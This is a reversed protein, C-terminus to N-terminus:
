ARSWRTMSWTVDAATPNNEVGQVDRSTALLAPHAFLPITALDRWLATDILRLIGLQRARAPERALQAFMQDIAPSAYGTVNSSGKSSYIDGQSAVAPSGTWAFLAVDFAGAVWEKDLFTPSGADTVTFGAQACSAQILAVTDARRRNIKGPSKAWGIRVAPKRGALLRRAGAIDTADYSRGGTSAELQPYAPQFPMVFRSQLIGADPTIPKILNDVIQQRPVCKAFAERLTRDRFQGRFSFDLHEFDFRDVQRAVDSQPQPDMIQIEGNALAQAQQSGAIFRIIVTRTRPPTGWWRPNMRLTVSQGPNWSDILYPGSSPTIAKDIRGPDFIWGKNYFQIARALGASAPDGLYDTFKKTMGTQREVVHAPLLTASGPGFATEWDAYPVRYVFTATKQGAECRPALMDKYGITGSADFGKDGTVGSNALWALALDDCDIPVGDSWVAHANITYRVTLPSDSIKQYTGFTTDRDITGDPHFQWFGGLVQSLVVFNAQTAGDVTNPNYGSPEQEYAWTITRIAPSGSGPPRVPV